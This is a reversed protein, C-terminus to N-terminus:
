TPYSPHILPVAPFNGVEPIPTCLVILCNKYQSLPRPTSLSDRRKYALICCNYAYIDPMKLLNTRRFLPDSHDLYGSHTIIRVAKKQLTLLKDIHVAAAGGWAVCCYMLYPYIISYYVNLLVTEPVYYSMRYMVGINKSLKSCIKDIHPKFSLSNDITVGLYNANNLINITRGDLSLMLNDNIDIQRNSFLLAVTKAVNLTLRNRVLWANIKQLEENFRDCLRNICEDSGIFATDDAFLIPKLVESVYAVDSFISPSSIAAWSRGKLFLNYKNRAADSTSNGIRVSHQRNSLYSRFWNLIVDRFGYQHLKSLLIPHNVTDYAKALDLLVAITHQKANLKEYVYDTLTCIPM